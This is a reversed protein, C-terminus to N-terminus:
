KGEKLVIGTGKCVECMEYCSHRSEDYKIVTGSSHCERCRTVYEVARSKHIYGNDILYNATRRTFEPSVDGTFDLVVGEILKYVSEVEKNEM